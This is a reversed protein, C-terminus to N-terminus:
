RSSTSGQNLSVSGAWARIAENAQEAKEIIAGHSSGDIIVLESNPIAQDMEQSLAVPTITDELGVLILTPVKIKPLLGRQDPRQALAIGGGIAGPVSAMEILGALYDGLAPNDRRTVGTLMEPVVSPVFSAVGLKYAQQAYGLWLKREFVQAPRATTDILILGDIREPAEAEMALATIGGMSHGGVIAHDLHLYDMLALVDRAYIEISSRAGPTTSHGFGRLDLAIVQFQNQLGALQERFLGSSLPYGHILVLARGRGAVEYHIQAGNVTVTQGSGAATGTPESKMGNKASGTAFAPTALTLVTMGIFCLVLSLRNM